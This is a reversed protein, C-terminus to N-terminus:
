PPTPINPVFISLGRQYPNFLLFFFIIQYDSYLLYFNDIPMRDSCRAYHYIKRNSRVVGPPAALASYSVLCIANVNVYFVTSM